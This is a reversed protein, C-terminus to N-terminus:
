ASGSMADDVALADDLVVLRVLVEVPWLLSVLDAPGDLPEVELPEVELPEAEVPLVFFDAPRFDGFDFGVDLELVGCVEDPPEHHV